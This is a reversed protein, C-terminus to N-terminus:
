IVLIINAGFMFLLISEVVDVILIAIAVVLLSRWKERGSCMIANMKSFISFFITLIVLLLLQCPLLILLSTILGTIGTSILIIVVNLGILYGRYILILEAIPYIFASLSFLCLLAVILAGSLLRWLFASLSSIKIVSFDIFGYNMAQDLMQEHKLRIAVFVGIFIGIVVLIGTIILRLKCEGLRSKFLFFISSFFSNTRKQKFMCYKILM